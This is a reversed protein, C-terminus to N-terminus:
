GGIYVAMLLLQVSRAEREEDTEQARRQRDCENRRLRKSRDM